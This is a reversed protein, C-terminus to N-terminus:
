RSSGAQRRKTVHLPPAAQMCYLLYDAFLPVITIAHQCSKGKRCHRVVWPWCNSHVCVCADCTRLRAACTACRQSMCWSGVFGLCYLGFGSGLRQLPVQGMMHPMFLGAGGRGGMAPHMGMMQMGPPLPLTPMGGPPAGMGRGM